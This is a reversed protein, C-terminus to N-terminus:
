DGIVPYKNEELKVLNKINNIILEFDDSLHSKTALNILLMLICEYLFLKKFRDFIEKKKFSM